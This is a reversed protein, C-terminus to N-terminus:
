FDCRLWVQRGFYVLLIESALFVFMAWWQDVRLQSLFLVVRLIHEAM